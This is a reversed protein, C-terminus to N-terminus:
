TAQCKNQEQNKLYKQYETKLDDDLLHVYTNVTTQIDSHGLRKQVYSMDWGARILNTAHSHRLLHASAYINTKKSLRRFLSDVASYQLPTGPEVKQSWISVFVYDSDVNEPYEEILYDSYFRMVEKNVHIIRNGSKAKAQNFNDLRNTIKIENKGGTAMDEHRLGLAEGIRMGTEYLLCILFKDRMHNCAKILNKVQEDNLCGPFTKPEKVKLLRTKALKGKSIHHLFPKYQRVSNVGYRYAEIGETKGLREYFEYFSAVTTLAHNITKESRKSQQPHLPITGPKPNRLWHIFESLQSLNVEKWDLYSQQLYEWYLKLNRAYSAITNPSRRLSELYRLYKSIPEVPLYNDDLVLWITKGNELQGKQVKM